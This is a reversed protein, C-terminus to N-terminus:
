CPNFHSLRTLQCSPYLVQGVKGVRQDCKVKNTIFLPKTTYISGGIEPGVIM